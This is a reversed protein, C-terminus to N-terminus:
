ASDALRRFGDTGSVHAYFSPLDLSDTRPGNRVFFEFSSDRKVFSPEGRHSVEVVLILANQFDRVESRVFPLIASSEYFRSRLLESWALLWKDLNWNKLQIDLEIGGTPGGNDDIGILLHGGETNLFACVSKLAEGALSKHEVLSGSKKWDRMSAFLSSKFECRPSEGSAALEDAILSFNLTADRLVRPTTLEGSHLAPSFELGLQKFYADVRFATDFPDSGKTGLLDLLELITVETPARFARSAIPALADHLNTV